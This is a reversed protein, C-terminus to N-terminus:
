KAQFWPQHHALKGKNAREWLDDFVKNLAWEGAIAGGMVFILTTSTRRFVMRYMLNRVDVGTSKIVAM